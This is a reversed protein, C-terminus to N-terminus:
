PKVAAAATVPKSRASASGSTPAAATRSSEQRALKGSGGTVATSAARSSEDSYTYSLPFTRGGDLSLEFTLPAGGTAATAESPLSLLIQSLASAASAPQQPAKGGVAGATTSPTRFLAPAPAPAGSATALRASVILPTADEGGAQTGRRCRVVLSSAITADSVQAPELVQPPLEGAAGGAAAAAKGGGAKSALAPAGGASYSTAANIAPLGDRGARLADLGELTLVLESATAAAADSPGNDTDNPGSVAPTVPAVSTVALATPDFYRLEAAPVAPKHEGDDDDHGAIFLQVTLRRAAPPLSTLAHLGKLLVLQTASTSTSTAGGQQAKTISGQKVLAAQPPKASGARDRATTATTTATAGAAASATAKGAEVAAAAAATSAADSTAALAALADAYVQQLPPLTLCPRGQADLQLAISNSGRLGLAYNTLGAAVAPKEQGHWPTGVLASQPLWGTLTQLRAAKDGTVVADFCPQPSSTLPLPVSGGSLPVMLQVHSQVEETLGPPHPPIIAVYVMGPGSVFAHWSTNFTVDAQAPSPAAADVPTPATAIEDTAASAIEAAPVASGEASIIQTTDGETVTNGKPLEIGPSATVETVALEVVATPFAVSVRYSWYGSGEANGTADAATAALLSPAPCEIVGVSTVVGRVEVPESAFCPPPYPTQADSSAGVSSMTNPRAMPTFRVRVQAGVAAPFGLGHIRLQRRAGKSAAEVAADDGGEAAKTGAPEASSAVSAM